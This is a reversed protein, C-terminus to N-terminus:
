SSSQIDAPPPEDDLIRVLARQLADRREQNLRTRPIVYLVSEMQDQEHFLIAGTAGRVPMNRYARSARLRGGAAILADYVERASLPTERISIARARAAMDNRQSNDSWLKFLEVGWAERIENGTGFAAVIIAPLQALTLLRSVAAQSLNFARALEEQTPYTGSRLARSLIQGRVYPSDGQRLLNEEYLAVYADADTLPRVEVLLDRGLSRAVAHRRAGCIIELDFDVDDRVPRALVAQLQGHQEISERLAKLAEDALDEESRSHQTWVRCRFPSVLRRVGRSEPNPQSADPRADGTIEPPTTM